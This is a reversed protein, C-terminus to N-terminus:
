LGINWIGWALRNVPWCGSKFILRCADLDELGADFDNVQNTREHSATFNTCEAASAYALGNDDLLQNIIDCFTMAAIANKGTYTFAGALAVVQIM